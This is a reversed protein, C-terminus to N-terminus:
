DTNLERLVRFHIDLSPQESEFYVVRKVDCATGNRSVEKMGGADAEESGAESSTGAHGDTGHPVRSAADGLYEKGADLAISGNAASSPAFEFGERTHLAQRFGEVSDLFADAEFALFPRCNNGWQYPSGHVRIVLNPLAALRALSCTNTPFSGGALGGNGGDVWHIAAVRGFIRQAAGGDMETTSANNHEGEGDGGTSSACTCTRKRRRRKDHTSAPRPSPSDPDILNERPKNHDTDTGKWGGGGREDLNEHGPSPSGNTSSALSTSSFLRKSLRSMGFTSCLRYWLSGTDQKVHIAVATRHWLMCVLNCPIVCCGFCARCVGGRFPSM